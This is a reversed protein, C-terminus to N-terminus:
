ENFFFNDPLVWPAPSIIMHCLSIVSAAVIWEYLWTTLAPLGYKFPLTSNWLGTPRMETTPNWQSPEALKLQILPSKINRFSSSYKISNLTTYKALTCPWMFFVIIWNQLLMSTVLKEYYCATSKLSPSNKSATSDLRHFSQDYSIVGNKNKFIKTM